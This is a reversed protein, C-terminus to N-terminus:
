EAQSENLQTNHKRAKLKQYCNWITVAAIIFTITVGIIAVVISASSEMSIHSIHLTAKQEHKRAHTRAQTHSTPPPIITICLACVCAKYFCRPCSLINGDHQARAEFRLTIGGQGHYRMLHMSDM